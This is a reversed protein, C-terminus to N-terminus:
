PGPKGVKVFVIDDFSARGTTLYNLLWVQVQNAGPLPQVIGAYHQWKETQIGAATYTYYGVDKPINGTWVGGLYANGGQSLIWGTQLYLSEEDVSISPTTFSTVSYVDTNDLSAVTTLHGARNALSLQHLGLEGGGDANHIFGSVVGKTMGLEFGGNFVLNDAKELVQVWLNEGLSYWGESTDGAVEGFPGKWYLWLPFTEGRILRQEDGRYGWFTWGNELTQNVIIAPGQQAVQEIWGMSLEVQESEVINIPAMLPLDDTVQEPQGEASTPKQQTSAVQGTQSMTISQRESLLGLRLRAPSYESAIALVQQYVKSAQELDGLLYYM